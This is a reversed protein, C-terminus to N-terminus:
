PIIETTEFGSIVDDSTNFLISEDMAINFKLDYYSQDVFVKQATNEKSYNETVVRIPYYNKKSIFLLSTSISGESDTLEIAFGPMTQKNELRICIQFCDTDRIVTDNRRITQYFEKNNLVYKFMYQMTFPTNHSWFHKEKFTPYKILDFVRALSDRNNKRILKDGDYIDEYLVRSKDENYFYWHGKVGVISDDILRQFYMERYRFITENINGPNTRNMDQKYYVTKVTDIAAITKQLIEDSTETKKCSISGALLILSWILGYKKM